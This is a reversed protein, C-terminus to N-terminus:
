KDGTSGRDFFSFEYFIRNKLTKRELWITGKNFGASEGKDKGPELFYDGYSMKGIRYKKGNLIISKEESWLKRLEKESFRIM